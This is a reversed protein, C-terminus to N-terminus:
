LMPVCVAGSKYYQLLKRIWTAITRQINHVDLKWTQNPPSEPKLNPLLSCPPPLDPVSVLMPPVNRTEKSSARVGVCTFFPHCMKTHGGSQHTPHTPPIGPKTYLINIMIKAESVGGVNLFMNSAM